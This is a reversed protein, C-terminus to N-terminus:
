RQGREHAPKGEANLLSAAVSLAALEALLEARELEIRELENDSIRGDSLSAAVEACLDSFERSTQALRQLVHGCDENTSPLPLVLCGCSEAFAHLIRHDGTLQTIRQADVLGLKASGEGAVEHSLTSSSKNLRPALSKSGGPYDHVVHYAVDLLHM